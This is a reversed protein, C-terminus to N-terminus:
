PVERTEDAIEIGAFESDDSRLRRGTLALFADELSAQELRLEAAVVGQRALLSTVAHAVEGTGTVVVQGDERCVSSVEPLMTFPGMDLPATPRFRIRQEPHARAVLEAPSDVAVVRGADILAVRDCLREAEEMLPTAMLVTVGSDRVHRILEWTVRRTQPDLGSTLEDFVVIEPRGVLAIAISLRKRQGGSLTGFAADRQETLGLREVLEAPDAPNPYFSAFLELSETVRLRDPLPCNQRQAGLRERLRVRDHQPDLGLVLIEGGDRRRLGEICEVTTTKGAGDPGLIGFIEGRRVTFSVDQVAVIGEYRKHLEQVEIITM